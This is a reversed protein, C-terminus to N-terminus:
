RPAPNVSESRSPRTAIFKIGGSWEGEQGKKDISCIRFYYAKAEFNYLIYAKGKIDKRDDRLVNFDLDEAVQLHYGAAGEVKEWRCEIVNEGYRAGEVPAQVVPPPVEGRKGEKGNEAKGAFPWACVLGALLFFVALNRLSRRM